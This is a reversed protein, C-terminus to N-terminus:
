TVGTVGPSTHGKLNRVQPGAKAFTPIPVRAFINRRLTGAFSISQALSTEEKNDPAPKLYALWHRFGPPSSITLNNAENRASIHTQGSAADACPGERWFTTSVTSIL